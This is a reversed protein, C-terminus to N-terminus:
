VCLLLISIIIIASINNNNYIYLNFTTKPRALTYIICYISPSFRVHALSYLRGTTPLIVHIYMPM